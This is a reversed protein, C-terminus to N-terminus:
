KYLAVEFWLHERSLDTDDSVFLSAKLHERLVSWVICSLARTNKLLMFLGISTNLFDNTLKTFLSTAYHKQM